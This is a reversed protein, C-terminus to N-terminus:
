ISTAVKYVLNAFKPAAFLLLCGIAYPMLKEKYQAKGEASSSMYQIGIIIIIVISLITGGLDILWLVTGTFRRIGSEGAISINGNIQGPTITAFTSIQLLVILINFIIIIKPLIKKM